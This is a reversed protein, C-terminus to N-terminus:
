PRGRGRSRDEDNPKRSYNFRRDHGEWDRDQPPMFYENQYRYIQVARSGPGNHQYYHGNFEYVTTPTWRKYNSRWDGAREASYGLVGIEAGFRRDVRTVPAYPRARSEDDDHPRNRYNYRRDANVWGGDTPPFFYEGNYMYVSVARSGRVSHQYYRGNVDYLTVPTWRRYNQRWDGMHEQSYAFVGIDPGLRTGFRVTLNLQASARTPLVAMAALLPLAMLKVIRM